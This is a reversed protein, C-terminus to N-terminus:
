RKFKIREVCVIDFRMHILRLSFFTVRFPLFSILNVYDIASVVAVLEQNLSVAVHKTLRSVQRLVWLQYIRDLAM